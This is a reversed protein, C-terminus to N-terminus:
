HDNFGSYVIFSITFCSVKEKEIIAEPFLKKIDNKKLLQISEVIERANEKLPTKKFYGLSFNQLMKIQIFTPLFQFMPFFFHPEIPAYYNPTQLFYRKGVRKMEDAMKKQDEFNGVHEIVSNSFVIDFENDEFEKLDRGDGIVSKINKYKTEIKSLNLVTIKYNEDGAFGMIDWFTETGGIDLIKLPKPLNSIINKFIKMRKIRVKRAFSNEEEFDAIKWYIKNWM